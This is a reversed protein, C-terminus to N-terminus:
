VHIQMRQLRGVQMMARAPGMVSARLRMERALPPLTAAAPRDAPPVTVAARVTAVAASAARQTSWCIFGGGEGGNLHPLQAAAPAAGPGSEQQRGDAGSAQQRAHM